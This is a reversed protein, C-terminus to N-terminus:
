KRSEKLSKLHFFFTGLTYRYAKKLCGDYVKNTEALDNGPYLLSIRQFLPRGAEGLNSALSCAVEIWTGYSSCLILKNEELYLVAQEVKLIHTGESNINDIHSSVQNLEWSCFVDAKFNFYGEEDYSYGRLRSVDKCSLDINIGMSAFAKHLSNFHELHLDPHKIPVLGWYGTGSVSQGCYAVNSINSLQKKLQDYNRIHTNDKFDIDFQMLGSHQVLSANERKTFVGSPTCAPLAAKLRDREKKNTLSRLRAIEEAYFKKTLFTVMRTIEEPETSKYNRFVSIGVHLISEPIETNTNAETM